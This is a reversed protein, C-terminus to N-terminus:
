LVHINSLPARRFAAALCVLCHFRDVRRHFHCILNMEANEVDSCNERAASGAIRNFSLFKHFVFAPFLAHIIAPAVLHFVFDITIPLFPM